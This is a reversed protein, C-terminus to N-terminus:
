LVVKHADDDCALTDNSDNLEVETVGNKDLFTVLCAFFLKITFNTVILVCFLRILMTMVHLLLM